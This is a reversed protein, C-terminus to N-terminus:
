ASRLGPSSTAPPRGARHAGDPQPPGHTVAACPGHPVHELRHHTHPFQEDKLHVTGAPMLRPTALSAGSARRSPGGYTSSLISTWTARTTPWTCQRSAPPRCIRPAAFRTFSDASSLQPLVRRAEVPYFLTTSAIAWLDNVFHLAARRHKDFVLQFPTIVLMSVFLPLSLLITLMYFAVARVVAV